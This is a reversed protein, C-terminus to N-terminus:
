PVAEWLTQDYLLDFDIPDEKKLTDHAGNDTAYLRVWDFGIAQYLLDLGDTNKYFSATDGAAHVHDAFATDHLKARDNGGHVAQLHYEDFKRAVIQYTPNADAGGWFTVKHPRARTSDDEGSDEFHATDFGTSAFATLTNYGSVSVDFGTGVLRSQDRQGYFTDNGQSDFLCVTNRGETMIAEIQEFNKARNYYTGGGYMKGFFQGTQPWDFKFKDAGSTDEMRALDSGGNRTTAYAYNYMFDFTELTFSQGSLSGYGKHSVFIDDGVSDYLYAEDPGGGGHATIGIVDNVTVLFGNEGFTGHDPFFRAIEKDAGGALAVTDDGLGGNFVITQYQTDDFDYQVGNITVQYSGTPAFTFADANDTGFVQIETGTTTVLNAITLAADTSDGTIKLLYTTAAQCSYDLRGTAADSVALPPGTQSAYLAAAADGTAASAIATLHGARTSKFQYWVNGHSLDLGGIQSFDVIGLDIPKFQTVAIQATDTHSAGENDTVRLGITRTVPGSIGAASFTPSIGTADDYTGDSDFDWAFTLSATSQENDSSGAASLVVSGGETVTYFWGADAIPPTNGEKTVSVACQATRGQGDILTYTFISRNSVGSYPEFVIQDAETRISGYTHLTPSAVLFRVSTADLGHTVNMMEAKTVVVPELATASREIVAVPDVFVGRATLVVTPQAPDNTELCFEGDKIGPTEAVFTLQVDVTVGPELVTLQMPLQQGTSDVFEMDFASPDSVVPATVSIELPATGANTLRFRHAEPTWDSSARTAFRIFQDTANGQDDSIDLAPATEITIPSEHYVMVPVSSGDEVVAYIYYSGAALNTPNWIYPSQSATLGAAILRGDFGQKDDDIYLSVTPVSDDDSLSYALTVPQGGGGIISDFSFEPQQCFVAIEQSIPGTVGTMEVSWGAIQSPTYSLTYVRQRPTCLETAVAMDSRDGMQAETIRTGDPLVLVGMPNQADDLWSVVLLCDDVSASEARSAFGLLSARAVAAVPVKEVGLLRHRGDFTVELEVPRFGLVKGSVRLSDNAPNHDNSFHIRYGASALVTGGLFWVDKPVTISASGAADLVEMRAVRSLSASATSQILGAIMSGSFTGELRKEELFVSLSADISAVEEHVLYAHGSLTFQEENVLISGELGVLAGEFAGGGLWGPLNVKVGPGFTVGLTGSFTTPESDAEAFGNLEAKIKQVVVGTQGLPINMGAVEVSVRNLQHQILAVEVTIEWGNHILLTAKADITKTAPNWTANLNRFEFRDPVIVVDPITVSYTGDPNIGLLQYASRGVDKRWKETEGRFFLRENKLLPLLKRGKDVWSLYEPDNFHFWQSNLTATTVQRVEIGVPTCVLDGDRNM